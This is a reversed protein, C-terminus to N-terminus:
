DPIKVQLERLTQQYAEPGNVNRLETVDPITLLKVESNILAKRPCSYGLSLFQLLTPYSRPEWITLLPEPFKEEADYFATAMKTHDRQQVLYQLTESSLLPLDCAVALLAANPNHQFATLIGGKPGLNLFQDQLYPLKGDLETVQAANCSVHVEQCFAQLLHYVHTRQDLGHYQLAGKDQQMRTSKGGALVLGHLPPIQAQYYQNVFASIQEIDQLNYVPVNSFDGLHVQIFAPIETVNEQLLILKVNTLKDLKKELPKAPDIVIM